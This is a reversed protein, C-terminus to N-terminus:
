ECRPLDMGASYPYQVILVKSPYGVSCLMATYRSQVVDRQGSLQSVGSGRMM